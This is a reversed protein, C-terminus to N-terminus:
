VAETNIITKNTLFKHMPCKNAIKILRNREDETLDGILEIKRLISNEDGEAVIEVTTRIDTLPINKLRAYMMVTMNTCSGLSAELLEHPNLATDTGGLKISVDSHITHQDNAAEVLLTGINRVRIM